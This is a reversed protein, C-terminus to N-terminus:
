HAIRPGLNMAISGAFRLFTKNKFSVFEGNVGNTVQILM